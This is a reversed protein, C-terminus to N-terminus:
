RQRRRGLLEIEVGRLNREAARRQHRKLYPSTLARNLHDRYNQLERPSWTTIDTSM